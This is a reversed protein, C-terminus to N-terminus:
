IYYLWVVDVLIHVLLINRIKTVMKGEVASYSEEIFVIAPPGAPGVDKLPTSPKNILESLDQVSPRRM